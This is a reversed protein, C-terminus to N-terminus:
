FGGELFVVTVGWEFNRGTFFCSDSTLCCCCWNFHVNYIIFWTLAFTFYIPRYKILVLTVAEHNNAETRCDVKLKEGHRDLNM